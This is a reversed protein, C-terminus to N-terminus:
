TKKNLEDEIEKITNSTDNKINKVDNQQELVVSKNEHSLEAKKNELLLDITADILLSDMTKNEQPSKAPQNNDKTIKRRKKPIKKELNNNCNEIIVANNNNSDNIINDTITQANFSVNETQANININNNEKNYNTNVNKRQRRKPKEQKNQEIQDDQNKKPTQAPKKRTRKQKESVETKNETNVFSNTHLLNFSPADIYSSSIQNDINVEEKFSDVKNVTKEKSDSTVSKVKVNKKNKKTDKTNIIENKVDSNTNKPLETFFSNTDEFFLPQNQSEQSTIQKEKTPISSIHNITTNVDNKISDEYINISYGLSRKLYEQNLEHPDSNIPTIITNKAHNIINKQVPNKKNYATENTKIVWHQEKNDNLDKIANSCENNFVNFESTSIISSDSVYPSIVNISMNSDLDNKNCNYQRSHNNKIELHQNSKYNKRPDPLQNIQINSFTDPNIGYKKLINNEDEKVNNSVEIISNCDERNSLVSGNGISNKSYISEEFPYIRSSATEDTYNEKNNECMNINNSHEIEPYINEQHYYNQELNNSANNQQILNKNTIKETDLVNNM